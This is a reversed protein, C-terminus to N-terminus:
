LKARRRYAARKEEADDAAKGPIRHGIRYESALHLIPSRPAGPSVPRSLPLQFREKL